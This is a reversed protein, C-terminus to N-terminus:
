TLSWSRPQLGRDHLEIFREVLADDAISTQRYRQCLAGQVEGPLIRAILM